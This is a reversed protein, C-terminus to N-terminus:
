QSKLPYKRTILTKKNDLAFQDHNIIERINARKVNFYKLVLVLFFLM